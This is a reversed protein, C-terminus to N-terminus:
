TVRRPFRSALRQTNPTSLTSTLMTRGIGNMMKTVRSPGTVSWTTPVVSPVSANMKGSDTIVANPVLRM